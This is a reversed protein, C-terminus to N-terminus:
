CCCGFAGDGGGAETHMYVSFQSSPLSATSPRSHAQTSPTPRTRTSRSLLPLLVPHCHSPELAPRHRVTPAMHAILARQASVLAARSAASLGSGPRTHCPSLIAHAQKEVTHLSQTYHSFVEELFLPVNSASSSASIKRASAIQIRALGTPTAPCPESVSISLM